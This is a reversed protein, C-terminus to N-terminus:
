CTVVVMTLRTLDGFRENKVGSHARAGFGELGGSVVLEFALALSNAGHVRGPKACPKTTRSWPGDFAAVGVICATTLASTVVGPIAEQIANRLDKLTVVSVPYRRRYQM